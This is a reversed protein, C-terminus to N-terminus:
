ESTAQCPCKKSTWSSLDTLVFAHPFICTTKLFKHWAFKRGPHTGNLQINRAMYPIPKWKFNCTSVQPILGDLSLSSVIQDEWWPKKANVCLADFSVKIRNEAKEIVIVSRVLLYALVSKVWCGSHRFDTCQIPMSLCCISEKVEHSRHLQVSQVCM